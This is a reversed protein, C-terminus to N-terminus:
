FLPEAESYKGQAHYLYALNNLSTAVNPHEDGWIRKALYLSQKNLKIAIDLKGQEKILAEIRVRLNYYTLEDGVTSFFNGLKKLFNM